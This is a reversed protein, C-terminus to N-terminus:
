LAKTTWTLTAMQLCFHATAMGLLTFFCAFWLFGSGHQRRLTPALLIVPMLPSMWEQNALALTQRLSLKPGKAHYQTFAVSAYTCVSAVTPITLASAIAALISATRVIDSVWSADRMPRVENYNSAFDKKGVYIPGRGVLCLLVWPTIAFALYGGVLSFLYLKGRLTRLRISDLKAQRPSTLEHYEPLREAGPDVNPSAMISRLPVVHLEEQM